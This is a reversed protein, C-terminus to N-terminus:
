SGDPGTTGSHIPCDERHVRGYQGENWCRCRDEAAAEVTEARMLEVEDVHVKPPHPASTRQHTSELVDIQVGDRWVTGGAGTVRRITPRATTQVVETRETHDMEVSDRFVPYCERDPEAELHDAVVVCARRDSHGLTPAYKRLLAAAVDAPHVNTMREM